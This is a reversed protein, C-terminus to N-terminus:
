FFLESMFLIPWLQIMKMGNWVRIVKKGRPVCTSYEHSSDFKHVILLKSNLFKYIQEECWAMM